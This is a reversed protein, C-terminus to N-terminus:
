VRGIQLARLSMDKAANIATVNAEYARTATLLDVMEQMLNIDPYAVYGQANADPHSPDYELRVRSPDRVVDVVRVESLNAEVSDSLLAAFPSQQPVAAFVVLRPQYPGGEPTRTANANALNAAIVQMRLRQAQLGSFSARLGALFDM